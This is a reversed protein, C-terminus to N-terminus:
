RLRVVTAPWAEDSLVVRNRGEQKARYMAKDARALLEDYSCPAGHTSAIGISATVEIPLDGAQPRMARVLAQVRHALAMGQDSGADPLFVAFEEGGIRGACEGVRIAGALAAGLARIVGDGAAHGHRDNIAKFHDIDIMVIACPRTSRAANALAIEGFETFARRNSLGSLADTRAQRALEGTLQITRRLAGNMTRVGRSGAVLFVTGGAGLATHFADGVTFMYLTAPGMILSISVAVSPGHAAYIASAGAAMGLVFCYVFAQYADPLAYLNLWSGVGWAASVVALSVVFRREWPRVSAPDTAAKRYASALLHRWLSMGSLVAVWATLMRPNGVPWLVASVLAAVLPSLFQNGLAQNYILSLQQARMRADSDIEEAPASTPQDPM